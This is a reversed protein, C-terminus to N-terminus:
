QQSAPPPPPVPVSQYQWQGSANDLTAVFLGTLDDDILFIRAVTEGPATATAALSADFYRAPKALWQTAAGESFFEASRSEILGYARPDTPDQRLGVQLWLWTAPQGAQMQVPLARVPNWPFTPFVQDPPAALWWCGEESRYLTHSDMVWVAKNLPSDNEASMVYTIIPEATDPRLFTSIGTVPRWPIGMVPPQLTMAWADGLPAQPLMVQVVGQDPAPSYSGVLADDLAFSEPWRVAVCPELAPAGQGHSWEPGFDFPYAATKGNADVDYRTAAFGSELIGFLFVSRRVKPLLGLRIEYGPGSPLPTLDIPKSFYAQWDELRTSFPLAPFYLYRYGSSENYTQVAFDLTDDKRGQLHNSILDFDLVYKAGDIVPEYVIWEGATAAPLWITLRLNGGDWGFLISEGTANSAIKLRTYYRPQPVTLSARDSALSPLTAPQEPNQKQPPAIQRAALQEISMPM